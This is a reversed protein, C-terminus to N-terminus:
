LFVHLWPCPAHKLRARVQEQNLWSKLLKSASNAFLAQVEKRDKAPLKWVRDPTGVAGIYVYRNLEDVNFHASLVRQLVTEGQSQRYGYTKFDALITPDIAGPQLRLVLPDGQTTAMPIQAYPGILHGSILGCIRIM